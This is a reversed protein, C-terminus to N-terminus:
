VETWKITLNPAASAINNIEAQQSTSIFTGTTNQQFTINMNKGRDATTAVLSTIMQKINSVIGNWQPTTLQSPQHFGWRFNEVGTSASILVDLLPGTNTGSLFLPMCTTGILAIHSIINPKNDGWITYPASQPLIAQWIGQTEDYVTFPVVEETNNNRAEWYPNIKNPVVCQVLEVSQANYPNTIFLEVLSIPNAEQSVPVTKTVGSGSINLTTSRAAGTNAAATVNVSGSGGGTDPTATIFDKQM